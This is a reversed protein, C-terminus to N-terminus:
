QLQLRLCVSLTQSVDSLLLKRLLEPGDHAKCHWESGM